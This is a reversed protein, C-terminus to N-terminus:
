NELHNKKCKMAYVGCAQMLPTHMVYAKLSASFTKYAPPESHLHRELKDSFLQFGLPLAYYQHEVRLECCHDLYLVNFLVNFVKASKDAYNLIM